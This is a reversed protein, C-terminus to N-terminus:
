ALSFLRQGAFEHAHVPALSLRPHRVAAQLMDALAVFKDKSIRLTMNEVMLHIDSCDKCIVVRGVGEQMALTQYM